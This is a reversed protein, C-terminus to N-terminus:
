VHSAIPCFRDWVEFWWLGGDALKITLQREEWELSKCRPGSGAEEWVWVEKGKPQRTGADQHERARSLDGQAIFM